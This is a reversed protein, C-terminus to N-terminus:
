EIGLIDPKMNCSKVKFSSVINDFIRYCSVSNAKHITKVVWYMPREYKKKMNLKTCSCIKSLWSVLSKFQIVSSSWLNEEMHLTQIEMNLLKAYHRYIFHVCVDGFRDWHWVKVRLVNTESKFKHWYICYHMYLYIYLLFKKNM